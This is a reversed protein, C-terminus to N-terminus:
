SAPPGRENRLGAAWGSVGYGFQTWAGRRGYRMFLQGLAAMAAV